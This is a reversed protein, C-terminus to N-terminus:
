DDYDEDYYDDEYFNSNIHGDGNYVWYRDDPQTGMYEEGCGCPCYITENYINFPEIHILENTDENSSLVYVNGSSYENYGYNDHYRYAQIRFRGEGYSYEMSYDYQKWLNTYGAKKALLTEVKDRIMKKFSESTNDKWPYVMNFHIATFNKNIALTIRVRKYRVNKLEYKGYLSFRGEKDWIYSIVTDSDLVGALCGDAHSESFQELRYCSTWNYPNESSLMIDVPDISVTYTGTIEVNEYIKGIKTVLDEPAGLKNRFFNTIAVGEIRYMPFIKEIMRQTDYNLSHANTKNSKNRSFGQLWLAYAPYEKALTMYENEYDKGEDVYDIPMDVKTDGFLDYFHKKNRAWKTLYDEIIDDSLEQMSLGSYQAICKTFDPINVKKLMPAYEEGLNDILTQTKLM